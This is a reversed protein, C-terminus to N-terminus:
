LIGIGVLVQIAKATRTRLWFSHPYKHRLQAAQTREEFGHFGGGLSSRM